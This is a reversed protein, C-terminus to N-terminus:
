RVNTRAYYDVLSMITDLGMAVNLSFSFALATNILPSIGADALGNLLVTAPLTVLFGALSQYFAKQGLNVETDFKLWGPELRIQQTFESPYAGSLTFDKSMYGSKSAIMLKGSGPMWDLIVPSRLNVLSADDSILVEYPYSTISLLRSELVPFDIELLRKEGPELIISFFESYDTSLSIIEFELLGPPLVKLGTDAASYQQDGIRIYIDDKFGKDLVLECRPFGGIGKAGIDLLYENLSLLTKKIFTKDGLKSVTNDACTYEFAHLIYVNRIKEIEFYLISDLENQLAATKFSVSSINQVDFVDAEVEVVAASVPIRYGSAYYLDAIGSRDIESSSSVEKNQLFGKSSALSKKVQDNELQSLSKFATKDSIYASEAEDLIRFPYYRMQGLVAEETFAIVDFDDSTKSEFKSIIPLIGVKWVYEAATLQMRGHLILFIM